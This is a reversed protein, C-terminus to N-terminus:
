DDQLVRTLPRRVARLIPGLAGVTGLALLYALVWAAVTPTVRMPFSIAQNFSASDVQRGNLVLWGIVTSVIACVVATALVEALLALALSARRFGVARLIATERQRAALATGLANLVALVAGAGLAAAIGVIALRAFHALFGIQGAYYASQRVARFGQLRPDSRFAAAFAGFADPTALKVWVVSVQGQANYAAQLAPMDTWLESGWISGRADFTGTVKWPAQRIRVEAGPGLAVFRRTAARGAILEDVGSAFRRGATIRAAGGVVQWFAPTVGRVLVTATSGDRQRLQADAVFEPAALARGAADRAVGPLTGILAVTSPPLNSSIEGAANNSLVVAVDALGTRGALQAMGAPITLLAVLTLGAILFGAASLVLHRPRTWLTAFGIALAARTERMRRM